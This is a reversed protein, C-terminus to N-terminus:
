KAVITVKEFTLVTDFEYVTGDDATMRIHINRPGVPEPLKDFSLVHFGLITMDEPRVDKGCKYTNFLQKKRFAEFEAPAVVGDPVIDVILVDTDFKWQYNNRLVRYPTNTGFHLIDLLSTGAPHQEDFDQDSTVELSVFDKVFYHGGAMERAVTGFGHLPSPPIDNHKESLQRHVDSGARYIHHEQGSFIAASLDMYISQDIDSYGSMAESMWALDPLAKGKSCDAKTHLTWPADTYAMVLYKSRGVPDVCSATMIMTLLILLIRQKM